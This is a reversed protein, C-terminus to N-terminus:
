PASQAQGRQLTEVARRAQEISAGTAARYARIAQYTQGARALEGVLDLPDYELGLHRLLLDVKRELQLLRWEDGAQEVAYAFGRPGRSAGRRTLYFLVVLAMPIIQLALAVLILTLPTM